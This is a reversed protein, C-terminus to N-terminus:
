VTWWAPSTYTVATSLPWYPDLWWLHTLYCTTM